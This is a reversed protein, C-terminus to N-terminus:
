MRPKVLRRVWLFGAIYFALAAIMMTVGARTGLVLEPYNPNIFYSILVFVPPLAGLTRANSRAEATMSRLKHEYQAQQRMGEIMTELVEVLNGGTQRLVLVSIVFTRVTKANDLRRAMSKLAEDLPLGFRTEDSVQRFEESIPSPLERANLAIAQDLSQGARLSIIMMELAEPLQQEAQAIRGDRRNLLRLYFFGGGVVSFCLGAFVNNLAIMAILFGAAGYVSAQQIFSNVDPQEEGASRMLAALHGKLRGEYRARMLEDEAEEDVGLRQALLEDRRRSKGRRWWYLAQLTFFVSLSAMTIILLKLNM